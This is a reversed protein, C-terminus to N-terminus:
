AKRRPFRVTCTTGRGPASEIALRGGASEALRRALFLGLGTGTAKTTFFPNGVQALVERTMGAGDDAVSIEITGARDALSVRVRGGHEMAELANLMLNLYLQKLSEHDLAVPAHEPFPGDRELTVRRAALEGELLALTADLARAADGASEAAAAAGARAGPRAFELYRAVTRTLRDSEEIVFGAMRRAEPDKGALREASGRIVALPNKIEHALTATLRGMAALNEARSLRRELRSAAAAGRLVLAALVAVALLTVLAIGALTRGLAAVAPLYAAEAEVAVTGAIGLSDRVPAFAARALRGDLRYPPSVAAHGALAKALAEGRLHALPSPEGERARSAADFLTVGASDLLSVDAADTASRLTNLQAQVALYANSEERLRAIEAIDARSVQQAAAMHLLRREFDSELAARVGRWAFWASVATALVVVAAFLLM